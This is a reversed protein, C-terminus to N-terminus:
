QRAGCESCYYYDIYQETRTQTEYHAPSVEVTKTTYFLGGPCDHGHVAKAHTTWETGEGTAGCEGCGWM